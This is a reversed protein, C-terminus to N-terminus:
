GNLGGSMGPHRVLGGSSAPDQHQLAGIDLYGTGGTPLAGPYGSARADAGAGATNNLTFDAGAANTFFSGSGAVPGINLVSKGTGVNIGGSTNNYTANNRLVISNRNSVNIGYAGNGEAICNEVHVPDDAVRIGDRGNNYAVCNTVTHGGTSVAFGDSSAGSNNYSLCRIFAKGADSGSSFGTITNTHAVCDIALGQLFAAATSCGTALCGVYVTATTHVFASNTCNRGICKYVMRAVIGRASTLSAGDVDLNMVIGDAGTSSVITFTSIGSAQLLPQTGLDGRSSQYGEIILIALTSSFCGGSINTSASSITYTGAKVYIINGTVLGVGGAMGLSALAGGINLTAGTGTGATRDLTINSADVFAAVQYWGTTLGGGDIYVINGVIASTFAATASSLNTTGTAAADTVSDNAGTATRKADAQSYDTGSAGTVFGGGNTDNGASRVEFVSNASLAM